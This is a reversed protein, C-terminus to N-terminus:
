RTQGAYNMFPGGDSSTSSTTHRNTVAVTRPNRTNRRPPIHTPWPNGARRVCKSTATKGRAADRLACRHIRSGKDHGVWRWAGARARTGSKLDLALRRTARSTEIAGDSRAVPVTVSALPEIMIPRKVNRHDFSDSDRNRPSAYRGPRTAASQESPYKSRVRAVHGHLTSDLPSTGILV